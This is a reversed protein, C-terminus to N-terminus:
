SATRGSLWTHTEHTAHRCWAFLADYILMGRELQKLDDDESSSLGLSIALLGASQPELDLNGTDAGRIIRALHRLAPDNVGFLDLLTDVSCSEGRHSYVVGDIDFPIAGMEEAIEIVWEAEVFHFVALPDIFRRVLWPFAIRDIKPRERTIWQTAHPLLLPVDPGRQRLVLGGAAEYADIGGELHRADIGQSRLRAVALQSVNHGHLCYVVIPKGLGALEPGWVATEMHDRWVSGAIARAEQEFKFCRTSAVVTPWASTGSLSSLDHASISKSM